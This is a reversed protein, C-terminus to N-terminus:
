PQVQNRPVGSKVFGAGTDVTTPGSQQVYFGKYGLSKAVAFAKNAEAKTQYPGIFLVYWPSLNLKEWEPSYVVGTPFGQSQLRRQTPVVGAATRSSVCWVAWFGMAPLGDNTDAPTVASPQPINPNRTSQSGATSAAGPATATGTADSIVKGSSSPVNLTCAGATVVMLVSLVTLGLVRVLKRQSM